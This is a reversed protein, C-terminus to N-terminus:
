KPKAGESATLRLWNINFGGNTTFLRLTQEGAPLTVDATLTTWTQWGATAPVDVTTLVDEALRLQIQSGGNFSAVRFSVAYTGAARVNIRYDMWDGTEIFGVNQGGGADATKEMAIGKMTNYDEAQITASEGPVVSVILAERRRADAMMESCHKLAQDIDPLAPDLERAKTYNKFASDYQTESKYLDGLRYHTEASAPFLAIAMYLLKSSIARDHDIFVRAVENLTKIDLKGEQKWLAITQFMATAGQDRYIKLVDIAKSPYQDPYFPIYYHDIDFGATMRSLRTTILKGRESNTLFVFGRKNVVSYFVHGKFGPNSGSHAILTDKGLYFVEFGAGYYYPMDKDMKSIPQLIDRISKASLHKGDFTAIILKAYDEATVINASSPVAETNKWKDHPKGFADHGLAFNSPTEKGGRTEFMVYSRRLKLPKIVMREIYKEYPEGLMLGIAEAMYNYGTGSYVFKEGPNSLIELSDRNNEWRWNEIGSTHSLIMRPTIAKHRPDYKLPPGPDMYEHMPKDLDFKGEEVLKFVAYVLFSKSLSAAEFITNKDVRQKEPLNKYGYANSFVVENNDIVALSVAPIGTEDLMKEIERNFTSVTINRGAVTFREQAQLMMSWCVPLMLITRMLAQNRFSRGTIISRNKMFTKNLSPIGPM